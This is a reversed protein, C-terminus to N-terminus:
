RGPRKRTLHRARGFSARALATDAAIQARLADLSRFRKEPRLFDLLRTEPRPPVRRPVKGLLHVELLPPRARREVTPRFGINAVAPLCDPGFVAVYAGPPPLLENAPHVNITPFGLKRGLGRGRVTRGEVAFARGLLRAAAGVRGMSVLRRIRTSSIPEGKELVPPVVTVGFGLKAGMARLLDADGKGGRGFRFDYGVTVHSAGLRRVLVTKVFEAPTMLSFARTFRVVVALDVHGRGAIAALRQAETTLCHPAIHPALTTLPHRDFTLVLVQKGAGRHKAAASLIAEHGRHVGDFMGIVVVPKGRFRGPIRRLVRV